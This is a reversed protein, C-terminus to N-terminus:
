LLTAIQAGGLLQGGYMQTTTTPIFYGHRSAVSVDRWALQIPNSRVFVSAGNADLLCEMAERGERAITSASMRARAKEDMTLERGDAAAQDIMDATAAFHMHVTAIKDAATAVAIQSTAADRAKPLNTFTVPKEPISRLTSELAGRALGYIPSANMLSLTASFASQYLTGPYCSAREGSAAATVDFIRHDPVFVESAVLHHSGTACLGASDWTPDITCESMPMLAQGYSLVNGDEDPIALGMFAWDAHESNSCWGWRGSLIVGGDVRRATSTPAFTGCFKPDASLAYIEDQARPPVFSMVMQEITSIMMVWATSGCGRALEAICEITTRVNTQFGGRAHPRTLGWLGADRLADLNEQPVKRDRDAQVANKALLPVLASARALVDEDVGILGDKFAADAMAAAGHSM